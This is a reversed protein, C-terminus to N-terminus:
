SLAWLRARVIGNRKKKVVWMSRIFKREKPVDKIKIKKWIQWKIHM